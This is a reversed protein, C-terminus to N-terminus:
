DGDSGRAPGVRGSPTAQDDAEGRLPEIEGVDVRGTPPDKWVADHWAQYEEPDWFKSAYYRSGDITQMVGGPGPVMIQLSGVFGTRSGTSQRRERRLVSAIRPKAVVDGYEAYVAEGRIMAEQRQAEDLQAWYRERLLVFGRYHREAALDMWAYALAPDREVGEGKWLMEAIMGQSPKDAYRAARRFWTLAEDFRGANYAEWGRGRNQLDPHAALFGASSMIEEDLADAAQASAAQPLGAVLPVALLLSTALVISRAHM